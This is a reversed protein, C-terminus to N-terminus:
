VAVTKQYGTSTEACARPEAAARAPEPGAGAFRMLAEPDPKPELALESPQHEAIWGALIRMEDIEDVPVVTRGSRRALAGETRELLESAGPLPGWDVLRGQVLWFADFREKLPHKALVLRPASHTARLVGELRELV